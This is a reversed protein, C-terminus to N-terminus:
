NYVFCLLQSVEFANQQAASSTASFDLFQDLADPDSSDLFICFWIALIFEM